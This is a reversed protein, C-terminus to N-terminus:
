CMHHTRRNTMGPQSAVEHQDTGGLPGNWCSKSFIKSSSVGDCISTIEMGVYHTVPSVFYWWARSSPCQVASTSLVRGVLCWVLM